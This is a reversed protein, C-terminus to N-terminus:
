AKMLKELEAIKEEVVDVATILMEKSSLQGFPEVHVIFNHPQYEVKVIEDCVGDCADTLNLDLITNKDIKGSKNFIQPPYKDKFEEFQSANNDVTIQPQNVVWVHGPSWKAHTKGRGLVATAELEIQQGKILKAIPMNPQVPVVKPDMSQLREAPVFGTGKTKLTLKLQCKASERQNEPVKEPLEYSKLDTKLPILGLRHAVVEDYLVSTNKRIEVDEIAMTPVEDMVLRRVTNMFAASTDKVLFSVKGTKKDQNLLM